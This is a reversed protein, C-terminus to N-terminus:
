RQLTTISPPESPQAQLLRTGTVVAPTRNSCTLNPCCAQPPLGSAEYVQEIVSDRNIDDWPGTDYLLSRSLVHTTSWFSSSQLTDRVEPLYSTKIIITRKFREEISYQCEADTQRLVKKEWDELLAPADPGLPHLDQDLLADNGYTCGIHEMRGAGM